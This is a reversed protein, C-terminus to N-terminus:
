KQRQEREIPSEKQETLFADIEETDGGQFVLVSGRTVLHGLRIRKPSMHAISMMRGFAAASTNAKRIFNYVLLLDDRPVKVETGRSRCWGALIRRYAPATIYETSGEVPPCHALFYDLNGALANRFFADKTNESIEIMQQRAENLLPQRVATTDVAYHHLYGAFQLLEGEIGDVEDQSIELPAEQRPAVNFRRDNDSLPIPDSQNTAIITGFYSDRMVANRRMARITLKPETIQNKLKNMSSMQDRGEPLQFEDIWNVLSNEYGANFSDQFSQTTLQLVHEHGFLPTLIKNLILGKGTGQTGHLIWATGPKTRKQFLFAVWNMFRNYAVTDSGLAHFIVRRITPPMVQPTTIARMYITPQFRNVKKNPFDIVQNTTPDFRYEWDEIYEPGPLGHQALFHEIKQTSSVQHLDVRDEAAYYYGNYYTDSVPDRFVLPKVGTDPATTAVPQLAAYFEPAIDALRVPPEGKFNHLIENNDAPFYYAWSNGHNLNLYCFGREEKYDTVIAADPNLLIRDNGSQKYKPTRKRLGMTSRLEAVKTDADQQNKSVTTVFPMDLETEYKTSLVLREMGLPDDLGICVPPAIYILKDNQCTTIDLPYKLTLGNASLEIRDRLAPVTLNKHILWQKVVDPRVEHALMIFIHGRIGAKGNIGASASHQFLYSVAGLAPDLATLLADISDFGEYVDVDLCLWKTPAHSHTHGARSESTLPRDLTGKLLCAKEAMATLLADRMESINSIEQTRSTFDRVFPYSDTQITNNNKTFTKTLASGDAASLFDLRM